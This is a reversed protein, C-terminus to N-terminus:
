EVSIKTIINNEITYTLIVQNGDNRNEIKVDIENGRPVSVILIRFSPLCEMLKDLFVGRNFQGNVGFGLTNLLDIIIQKM